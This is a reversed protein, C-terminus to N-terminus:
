EDWAIRLVFTGPARSAVEVTGVTGLLALAGEVVGQIFEPLDQTQQFDVVAVRDGTFSTQTVTFNNGHRFVRGVRTVARRLGVVKLFATAAAGTLTGKWSDFFRQGFHRQALGDPEGPFLEKAAVRVWAEFQPAAYAPLPPRSVDLGERKLEAALAPTMATGIASVVSEAGAAFVVWQDKPVVDAANM